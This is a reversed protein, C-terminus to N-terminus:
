RVVLVPCHAHTVLGSSVSGLLLRKFGSMGRTGVVLLDAKENASFEVLAQVISSGELTEGRAKVGARNAQQVGKSLTKLAGEKLADELEPYNPMPVGAAGAFIMSPPSFAHVVILEAGFEHALAAALDVAKVSDNSGDFAVMIKGFKSGNPM